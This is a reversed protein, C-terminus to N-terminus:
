NEEKMKEKLLKKKAEEFSKHTVTDSNCMNENKKVFAIM